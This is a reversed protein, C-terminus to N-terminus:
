GYWKQSTNMAKAGEMVKNLILLDSGTHVGVVVLDFGKCIALAAQVTSKGGM